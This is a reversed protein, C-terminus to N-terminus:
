RNLNFIALVAKVRDENMRKKGGVHDACYRIKTVGDPNLTVLVENQCGAVKCRELAKHTLLVRHPTPGTVRKAKMVPNGKM